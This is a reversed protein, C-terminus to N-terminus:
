KGRKRTTVDFFVALVLVAGRIAYQYSIDVGMLNMGNTLAAMVLAGVISGTVKGVGGSASAGGVFASAIADLEFMTGATTTASQLRSTYLIGSVASLMGMSAFIIFTIKKVSIGALQAANRNGGMAYIHRGLTTKQTIFHYIGVVLLCIIVTWSLGNYDAIIWSLLGIIFSIFILKIIFLPKSLVEFGYRIKSQRNRIASIIYILIGLAGIILTLVHFENNEVIDPIFGNGIANFGKNPIIITGTKNTAMLLLGRWIFMGALSVVYAPIGLQGVLFGNFIGVILGFIMVVPIAVWESVGYQTMLIAAIAGSFGALYGVSLDIYQCVIILTMGVALVMIYGTQNLLTSINRPSIFLGDTALGFAIVIVLLAIYMGYERINKKLLHRLEQFLTM